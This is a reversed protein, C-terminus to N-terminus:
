GGITEIIYNSFLFSMDIHVRKNNSRSFIHKDPILTTVRSFSYVRFSLLFCWHFMFSAVGLQLLIFCLRAFLPCESKATHQGSYPPPMNHLPVPLRCFFNYLYLFSFDYLFLFFACHCFFICHFRNPRSLSTGHTAFRSPCSAAWGPTAIRIVIAPSPKHERSRHVYAACVCVYVYIYICYQKLSGTLFAAAQWTSTRQSCIAGVTFYYALYACIWKTGCAM